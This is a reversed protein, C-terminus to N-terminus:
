FQTDSISEHGNRTIIGGVVQIETTDALFSVHGDAFVAMAGGHHFSRIENDGQWANPDNIGGAQVFVNKGNIWESDPGGTDEAVVITNSLGDRIDDFDIEKDHLFVGDDPERTLIREGFLGGYDTPGLVNEHVPTSPCLFVSLRTAAVVANEPADFPRGFDIADFLNQQELQPLIYASWALQRNSSPMGYGRWEVCGIPLRRHAHHFNHLALGIQRLNNQCQTKRASERVMQVAPLLLGVLIGIIAIVVLLEVLTFGLRRSGACYDVSRRTACM